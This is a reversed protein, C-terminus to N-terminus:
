LEEAERRVAKAMRPMKMAEYERALTLLDGRDGAARCARWRDNMEGLAEIRKLICPKIADMRQVEGDFMKTIKMGTYVVDESKM